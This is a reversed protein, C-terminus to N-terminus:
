SIRRETEDSLYGMAEAIKLNIRQSLAHGSLDGLEPEGCVDAGIIRERPIARLCDFLSAESLTGPGWATLPLDLVDKDISIYASLTGLVDRVAFKAAPIVAIKRTPPKAAAGVVAIRKVQRLLLAYRLWNDCCLFGPLHPNADVHKDFVLLVIPLDVRRILLYSLHHFKSDGLFVLKHRSCPILLDLYAAKDTCCMYRVGTAEELDVRDGHKLLQPQLAYAGDFDLILIKKESSNTKGEAEQAAGSSAKDLM